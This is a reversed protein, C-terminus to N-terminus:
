ANILIAYTDDKVSLARDRVQRGLVRRQSTSAEIATTTIVPWTGQNARPGAVTRSARAWM